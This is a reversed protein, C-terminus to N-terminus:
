QRLQGYVNFGFRSVSVEAPTFGVFEGDLDIPLPHDLHDINLATCDFYRLEDHDIPQCNRIRPLYRLYERISVQGIWVASIQGDRLSAYPAIGLGKGFYNGNALILALIKGERSSQPSQIRVRQHRYQLITRIISYQYKLLAPIWRPMTSIRHAVVGGLGVDAINIFYRSKKAGDSGKFQLFGTDITQYRDQRIDEHLVQLNSAQDFNRVFDNGSGRPLIGLRLLEHASKDLEAAGQIMGNVVDSVTGDGGIAILRYHGSLVAARALAEGHGAYKTAYIQVQYHPEFCQRIQTCLLDIGRTLGHLVVALVKSERFSGPSGANGEVTDM